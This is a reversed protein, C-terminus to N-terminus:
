RRLLVKLVAQLREAAAADHPSALVQAVDHAWTQAPAPDHRRTLLQLQLARRAELHAAPTPLEAAMELRLLHTGRAAAAAESGAQALAAAWAARAAAAAKGGLAQASPLETPNRQKWAALLGMLAEGHAQTALKKLALEAQELAQRQARFAADGLRPGREEREHSRWDAREGGRQAGRADGPFGERPGKRADRGAAGPRGSQPQARAMGPRDDGRMAVLKRPAAAPTATPTAHSKGDAEPQAEPQTDASPAADPTATAAGPEERAQAEAADAGAGAAGPDSQSPTSPAVAAVSQGRLVAHLADSASRIRQADGAACAAELAQAAQLVAQDHASLAAAVHVREATKREFAADIPQRFAEWLKQELRRDLPVAHAEQQWRQQLAKVADIRLAPMQGLAQAEAILAQRRQVSQEQAAELPAHAQSMAAKWLPQLEAFLKESLHGSERWRESLAHLERLQLKWDTSTAHAATWAHVEDILALRQARNAQNQQKLQELWAEVQKHAENCAEDFKKWLAQNSAGGQDTAKWQERLQRLAEQVKRGGMRQGEPAQTLAVAKALLEERLQDARWRQWGELESSSALAAQAETELAPAIHRGHDKLVQRLAAAAKPATKSHGQALEQQLAQLAAAVAQTAQQQRAAHEGADAAPPAAVGRLARLEDAWVPVAPLAVQEDTAAALAQTLAADFAEWVLNLQNRSTELQQAYKPELSAWAPDACLGGARTQWAAVDTRLPERQAQAEALPKTSLLEIRQALLVAAEREVQVQHQLDELAKMRASLALRLGALPERSLPAGAKAAERQWGMADALNLRSQALLAQAKAAWEEAIADQAKIRKLEDLKDKLPKAAGKDRHSLERYVETMQEISPESALWERLRTAREGSTPSKFAGGTLADLQSLDATSPASKVSANVAESPTPLPVRAGVFPTTRPCM